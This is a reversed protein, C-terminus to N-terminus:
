SPGPEPEETGDGVVAQVAGAGCQHRADDTGHQPRIGTMNESKNEHASRCVQPWFFFFLPKRGGWGGVYM